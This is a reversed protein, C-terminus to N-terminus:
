NQGGGVKHHYFYKHLNIIIFTPMFCWEVKKKQPCGQLPLQSNGVVALLVGFFYTDNLSNTQQFNSANPSNSDGTSRWNFSYLFGWGM